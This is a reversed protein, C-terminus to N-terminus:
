LQKRVAFLAWSFSTLGGGHLLVLITCDTANETNHNCTYVSFKKFFNYLITVRVVDQVPVVKHEDFFSKWSVQAPSKPPLMINQQEAVKKKM